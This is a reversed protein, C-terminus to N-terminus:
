NIPRVTVNNNIYNGLSSNDAVNITGNVLNGQIVINAANETDNHTYGRFVCNFVKNDDRGAIDKTIFSNYIRSGAEMTLNNTASFELNCNKINFIGSGLRNSGKFYCNNINNITHTNNTASIVNSSSSANPSSSNSNNINVINDTTNNGNSIITTINTFNSNNINVLDGENYICVKSNIFNCNNVNCTCDTVVYINRNGSMFTCNEFTIDKDYYYSLNGITCSRDMVEPTQNYTCNIYSCYRALLGHTTFGANNGHSDYTNCYTAGVYDVARRYRDVTINYSNINTSEHINLFEGYPQELSSPNKGICNRIIGNISNYIRAIGGPSNTVNINEVIFYDSYKVILFYGRGVLGMNNFTAGNGNIKFHIPNIKQIISNVPYTWQLSHALTIINNSINIITTVLQKYSDAGSETPNKILIIDGVNLDTSSNLTISNTNENAEAILSYYNEELDGTAIFLGKDNQVDVKNRYIITNPSFEIDNGENITLDTLLYSNYAKVIKNSNLATQFAETDDTIGDGVAGFMEPTVYPLYSALLENLTGDTVMEDLKQNIEEQVDLNDFYTNVYNELNNYATILTEIQQETLNENSIVQNLYEVVKSILQYNTIADFDAEIFPFNEIVWGKFPTIVKYDPKNIDENM